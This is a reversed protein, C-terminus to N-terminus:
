RSPCPRACFRVRGIQALQRPVYDLGQLRQELASCQEATLRFMDPVALGVLRQIPEQFPLSFDLVAQRPTMELIAHQHEVVHARRVEFAAMTRQRLIAVAPIVSRGGASRRRGARYGRPIASRPRPTRPCCPPGSSASIESRCALDRKPILRMTSTPSRPIIVAALIRSSRLDDPRSQIVQRRAGCIWAKACSWPGSCSESNSSRSRASILEGRSEPRAASRTGCGRDQPQARGCARLRRDRGFPLKRADLSLDAAFTRVQARGGLDAQRNAFDHVGLLHGLVEGEIDAVAVEGEARLASCIAASALSSPM